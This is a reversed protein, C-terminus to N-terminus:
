MICGTTLGTTHVVPKVVPQITYVFMWGTTLRNVVTNFLCSNTLSSDFWMTCSTQCSATYAIRTQCGTSHKYVHYFRNDFQNSLRNSLRNYWIFPAQSLIWMKWPCNRYSDTSGSLINPCWNRWICSPQERFRRENSLIDVGVPRSSLGQGWVTVIVSRHLLDSCLTCNYTYVLM